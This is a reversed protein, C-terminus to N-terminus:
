TLNDGPPLLRVAENAAVASLDRKSFQDPAHHGAREHPAIGSQPMMVDSQVVDPLPIKPSM